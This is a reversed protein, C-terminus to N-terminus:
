NTELLDVVRGALRQAEEVSPANVDVLYRGIRLRIVGRTNRGYGRWVFNEDGCESAIREVGTTTRTLTSVGFDNGGRTPYSHARATCSVSKWERRFQNASTRGDASHQARPIRQGPRVSRPLLLQRAGVRVRRARASTRNNLA